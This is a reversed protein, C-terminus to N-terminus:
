RKPGDSGPAQENDKAAEYYAAANAKSAAAVKEVSALHYPLMNPTRLDHISDIPLKQGMLGQYTSYWYDSDAARRELVVQSPAWGCDVMAWSQGDKDKVKNRALYEPTNEEVKGYIAYIKSNDRVRDGEAVLSPVMSKAQNVAMMPVFEIQWDPNGLLSVMGEEKSDFRALVEEPTELVYTADDGEGVRKRRAVDYAGFRNDPNDAISAEQEPTSGEPARMRALLQFGPNGPNQTDSVQDRVLKEFVQRDTIEVALQPDAIMVDVRGVPGKNDGTARVDEPRVCVMVDPLAHKLQQELQQGSAAGHAYHAKIMGDKLWSKEFIVVSNPGMAPGQGKPKSLGLIDRRRAGEGGAPMPMQIKIETIPRGEADINAVLNLAPVSHLLLGVMTDKEPDSKIKKPDALEYRVVMVAVNQRPPLDRQGGGGRTMMGGRRSQTGSM